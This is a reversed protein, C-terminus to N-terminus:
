YPAKATLRLKIPFHPWAKEKHDSGTADFLARPYVSKMWIAASKIAQIMETLVIILESDMLYTLDDGLLTAPVALVRLFLPFSYVAHGGPDYLETIAWIIRIQYPNIRISVSRIRIQHSNFCISVSKIRFHFPNGTIACTCSGNGVERSRLAETVPPCVFNHWRLLSTEVESSM